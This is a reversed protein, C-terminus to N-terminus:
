IEVNDDVVGKNRIHDNKHKGSTFQDEGTSLARCRRTRLRLPFPFSLPL